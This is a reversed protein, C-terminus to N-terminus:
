LYILSLNNRNSFHLINQQRCNLHLYISVINDINKEKNFRKLFSPKEPYADDVIRRVILHHDINHPILDKMLFLSLKLFVLGNPDLQLPQAMVESYNLHHFTPMSM